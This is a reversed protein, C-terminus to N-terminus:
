NPECVGEVDATDNEDVTGGHGACADKLTNVDATTIIELSCHNQMGNIYETDKVSELATRFCDWKSAQPLVCSFATESTTLYSIRCPATETQAYAAAVIFALAVIASRM